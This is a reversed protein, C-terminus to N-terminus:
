IGEAYAFTVYAKQMSVVQYSEVKALGYPQDTLMTRPGQAIALSLYIHHEDVEPEPGFQWSVALLNM